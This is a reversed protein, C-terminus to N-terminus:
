FSNDENNLHTSEWISMTLERESGTIKKMKMSEYCHLKPNYKKTTKRLWHNKEREKKKVQRKLQFEAKNKKPVREQSTFDLM